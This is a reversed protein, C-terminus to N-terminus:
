KRARRFTKYVYALVEAVPLYLDRPVPDGAECRRYLERALARDEMQPLGVDAAIERMKLALYDAGKAVVIPAPTTSQDYRIAVAYHTPNTLLVDAEKLRTAMGGKAIKRRRQHQAARVEPSGEQERMERKLEDRTMMLQKELQKRQFFLDFVGIVLWVLGFRAALSQVAGVTENALTRAGFGGLGALRPWEAQVLFWTTAGLVVFKATAKLGEMAAVRSFLRQFGALPNVREWKPKMGEGSWALGVQAAVVVTALLALGLMPPFLGAASRQAWWAMTQPLGAQASEGARAMAERSTEVTFGAFAPLAAAGALLLVAGTLDTSRAVQGQRRAEQRRRPTPKETREGAPQAM